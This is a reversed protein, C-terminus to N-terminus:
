KWNRTSQTTKRYKNSSITSQINNWIMTMYFIHFCHYYHWDWYNTHHFKSSEIGCNRAKDKPYLMFIM